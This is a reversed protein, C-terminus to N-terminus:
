EGFSGFNCVNGFAFVTIGIQWQRYKQIGPLDKGTATSASRARHGASMLNQGLNICLSGVQLHRADSSALQLAIDLTSWRSLRYKSAHRCKNYMLYRASNPDM